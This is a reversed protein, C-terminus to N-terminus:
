TLVTKGHLGASSLRCALEVVKSQENDFFFQAKVCKMKKKKESLKTLCEKVVGPLFTKDARNGFSHHCESAHAVSTAQAWVSAGVRWLEKSKNIPKAIVLTDATPM